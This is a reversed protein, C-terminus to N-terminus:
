PQPRQAQASIPKLDPGLVYTKGATAQFNTEQGAYRVKVPKSERAALTAKVLKGNQWTLAM